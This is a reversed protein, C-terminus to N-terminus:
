IGAPRRTSPTTRDSWALLRSQRDRAASNTQLAGASLVVATKCFSPVSTAGYGFHGGSSVLCRDYWTRARHGVLMQRPRPSEKKLQNIASVGRWIPLLLVLGGALLGIPFSMYQLPPGVVAMFGSLLVFAMYLCAVGMAVILAVLSRRQALLGLVLLILGVAISVAGYSLSRLYDVKLVWAILGLVINLGALAYIMGCSTSLMTVPDYASGPVPAGNRLLRLLRHVLQVNLVSGDPLPFEQGATVAKKDPFSGVLDGNLRVETNKWSRGTFSVELSKQGGRELAFRVIPM